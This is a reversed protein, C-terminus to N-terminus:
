LIKDKRIGLGLDCVCVCDYISIILKVAQLLHQECHKIIYCVYMYEYTIQFPLTMLSWTVPSACPETLKDVNYVSLYYKM